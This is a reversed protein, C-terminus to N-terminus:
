FMDLDRLLRLMKMNQLRENETPGETLSMRGKGELIFADLNVLSRGLWKENLM